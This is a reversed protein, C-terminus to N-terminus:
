VAGLRLCGLCRELLSGTNYNVVIVAVDAPQALPVFTRHGVKNGSM